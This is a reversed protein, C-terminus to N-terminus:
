KVEGKLLFIKPNQRVTTIYEEALIAVIVDLLKQVSCADLPERILASQTCTKNM